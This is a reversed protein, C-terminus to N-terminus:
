LMLVFNKKSKTAAIQQLKELTEYHYEEDENAIEIALLAKHSKGYVSCADTVLATIRYPTDMVISVVGSQSLKKLKRQREQGVRPLFGAFYFEDLKRPYASVISTISSPGSVVKIPARLSYALQVLLHGPDAVGSTGQDSMYCVTKKDVLHQKVVDLSVCNKHENHLIYERHIGAAKLSQRAAKNEEFVVLDAERLWHLSRTPIDLPNGISNALLILTM